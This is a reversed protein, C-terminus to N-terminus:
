ILIKEIILFFLFHFFYILNIRKKYAFIKKKIYIKNKLKMYKFYKKLFAELGKSMKDSQKTISKPTDLNYWVNNNQFFIKQKKIILDMIIGKDEGVILKKDYGKVKNFIKKHIVLNSGMAGANSDFYDKLDNSFPQRFLSIKGNITSYVSSLITYAKNKNIFKKTKKLYDKGWLDDDDIFALFQTKSKKAGYNRAESITTKKKLNIIKIKHKNLSKYSITKDGSNVIIIEDPKYSQLFISKLCKKIDKDRSVRDFTNLIVSFKPKM